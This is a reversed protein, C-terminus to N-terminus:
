YISFLYTITARYRKKAPLRDVFNHAKYAMRGGGGLKGLLPQNTSSIKTVTSSRAWTLYNVDCCYLQELYYETCSDQTALGEKRKKFRTHRFLISRVPISFSTIHHKYIFKRAVTLVM